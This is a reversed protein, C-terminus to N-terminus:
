EVTFGLRAANVGAVIGYGNDVNSYVNEPDLSFSGDSLRLSSSSQMYRWAAPTLASLEIMIQQSKVEKETQLVFQLTKGNINDDSIIYEGKYENTILEPLDINLAPDLRFRVTDKRNAVLVGGATDANFLRMRYYNKTRGDEHLTFKVRNLSRQAYGDSILPRVPTSDGAFVTTLGESAVQIAYSRGQKAVAATAYYGLGNIVKWEPRALKVGDEWITVDAADLEVFQLSGNETVQKSSTVRIYILSDPQVLSNLVIKDGSYPIEIRSEKVCSVSLLTTIIILLKRM